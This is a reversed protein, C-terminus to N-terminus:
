KKITTAYFTNDDEFLDVQVIDRKELYMVTKNWDSEKMNEKKFIVYSDEFEDDDKHLVGKMSFVTNNNEVYEKITKVEFFYPGQSPIEKKPEKKAVMKKPAQKVPDKEIAPPKGMVSRKKPASKKKQVVKKEPQYSGVGSKAMAKKRAEAEAKEEHAQTLDDEIGMENLMKARDAIQSPIGSQDLELGSLTSRVYKQQVTKWLEGINADSLEELPYKARIRYKGVNYGSRAISDAQRRATRQGVIGLHSGFCLVWKSNDADLILLGDYGLNTLSSELENASSSNSKEELEAKNKQDTVHNFERESHNYIFYENQEEM